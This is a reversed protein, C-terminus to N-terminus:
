KADCASQYCNWGKLYHATLEAKNRSYGIEEFAAQIKAVSYRKAKAKADTLNGNIFNDIISQM